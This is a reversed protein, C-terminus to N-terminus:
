DADQNGIHDGLGHAVVWLAAHAGMHLPHLQMHAPAGGVRPKRQRLQPQGHADDALDPAVREAVEQQSFQVAVARVRAPTRRLSVAPVELV